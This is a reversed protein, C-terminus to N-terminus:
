MKLLTEIKRDDVTFGSHLYNEDKAFDDDADM